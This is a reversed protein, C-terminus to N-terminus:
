TPAALFTFSPLDVIFSQSAPIPASQATAKPADAANAPLPDRASLATAGAPLSPRMM